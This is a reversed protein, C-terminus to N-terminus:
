TRVKTASPLVFDYGLSPYYMRQFHYLESMKSHCYSILIEHLSYEPFKQYM